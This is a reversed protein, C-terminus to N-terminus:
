KIAKLNAVYFSLAKELRIMSEIMSNQIAEWESEDNRYGGNQLEFAIKRSRNAELRQWSLAQGFMNEIEEKHSLLEEFIRENVAGESRDIYLEVRSDHQGVAYNYSLGRVGAGTGIWHYESPSIHSHLSTKTEALKLLSEWFRRRLSHREAKVKRGEQEKERIQIQYEAVEPLPIVQQVDILVRENDRYPIVRICRIDLDRDNLWMVATTLEKSFNASVLVIRVDQGFLEENPEDWKLFDLIARKPENEAKGNRSLYRSYIEVVKEFTMTSIMAAYRIAQLEMHGGDETRKLEIVVLNADKDLGLLDIRRKSEQWEGFEESIILTDPSIVDIQNKLLRQLDTRERLGVQDFTTESIKTLNDTNIEYLAM